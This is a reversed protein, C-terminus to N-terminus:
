NYTRFAFADHKRRATRSPLLDELLKHAMEGGHDSFASYRGLPQFGLTDSFPNCGSITGDVNGSVRGCPSKADLRSSYAAVVASSFTHRDTMQCRWRRLNKQGSVCGCASSTYWRSTTRAKIEHQCSRRRITNIEVAICQQLALRGVVGWIEHDSTLALWGM